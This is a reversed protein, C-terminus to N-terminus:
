HSDGPEDIVLVILRKPGHAGLVLIREIDATRSPGTIITGYSWSRDDHVATLWSSLCAILQASTAVVCHVPPLVSLRRGGATTARLVISGTRSILADAQTFACQMGEVASHALTEEDVVTMQQELSELDLSGKFLRDLLATRQRGCRVFGSERALLAIKQAAEQPTAVRHVEGKLATLKRSFQEFLAERDAAPIDAFVREVVFRPRERLEGRRRTARLKDLIVQRSEM